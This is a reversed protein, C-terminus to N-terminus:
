QQPRACGISVGQHVAFPGQQGVKLSELGEEADAAHTFDVAAGSRFDSSTLIQLDAGTKTTIPTPAEESMDM